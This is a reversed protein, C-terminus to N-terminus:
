SGPKHIAAKLLALSQQYFGIAANYDEQAENVKIMQEELVVHNGDLRIESDPSNQSDYGSGSTTTVPMSAAAGPTSTATGSTLHGPDTRAMSLGGGGQAQLAQDFTFAKLDRPAYDPTDSNAVNQSLVAQRHIDYNLKGRLAAFLPIDNLSV